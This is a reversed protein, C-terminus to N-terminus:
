APKSRQQQRMEELQKKFDEPMPSREVTGKAQNNHSAPSPAGQVPAATNQSCDVVSAGSAAQQQQLKRFRDADTQAAIEHDVQSGGGKKNARAIAAQKFKEPNSMFEQWEDVSLCLSQWKTPDKEYSRITDAAKKTSQEDNWYRWAFFKLFGRDLDNCHQGLIKKTKLRYLYIRDCMVRDALAQLEEQTYTGLSDGNGYAEELEDIRQQEVLFRPAKAKNDRATESCQDLLDISNNCTVHTNNDLDGLNPVAQSNRDSVEPALIEVAAVTAQTHTNEQAHANNVSLYSKRLLSERLLSERLLRNEAQTPLRNEAQTPLRNEAQTTPPKGGPYTPPKGGPYTPPKGGPNRKRKKSYVEKRIAEVGQATEWEEYPTLGYITTKGARVEPEIMKAKVLVQIAKQAKQKDMRCHKAMNPVAEFCGGKGVRRVIHAYLRFEEPDLPYDDLFSPIFAGLDRRDRIEGSM